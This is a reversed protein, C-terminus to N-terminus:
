ELDEDTQLVDEEIKDTEVVLRSIKKIIDITDTEFDIILSIFVLSNAEKLRFSEDFEKNLKEIRQEIKEKNETRGAIQARGLLSEMKINFHGPQESQKYYLDFPGKRKNVMMTGSLHLTEPDLDPPIFFDCDMEKLEYKIDIIKEKLKNFTIGVPSILPLPKGKEEFKFSKYDYKSELLGKRQQPIDVVLEDLNAKSDKEISVSLDNYFIEIFNDMGEFLKKMQIIELTDSLYPYFVQLKSEFPLENGNNHKAKILTRYTLSDIRDIRGTRQEMDSPNWAIGYHYINKCYSHLDEGEKLIDTSILIFPNGPMRFQIAMKRVDRKHHGSVGAVPLQQILNHKIKNVDDFNRNVIKDFDKIVVKIEDLVFSFECKLISMMENIFYDANKSLANAVFTPVLGSGQRFISKIIETLMNLENFFRSFLGNKLLPRRLNIWDTFEIDCAYLLLETALTNTKYIDCVDAKSKRTSKMAKLTYETIGQFRKVQSKHEFFSQEEALVKEDLKVLNHKENLLYLNLEFWNKAYSNKRFNKGENYFFRQFFYPSKEEDYKPETVSTEDEDEDRLKLENDWKLKILEISLNKLDSSIYSKSTFKRTETKFEQVKKNDVLSYFIERLDRNVVKDITLEDNDDDTKFYKKLGRIARKEIRDLVAEIKDNELDNKFCEFLEQIDHPISQKCVIKIKDILYSSYKRLLKRELEKVSAIRRVFVLAKQRNVLLQFLEDVLSEQKPHPPYDNLKEFYKDILGKLVDEDKAIRDKRNSLTDAEYVSDANYFSEFGALMGMEFMNNNKQNLEKITKYQMMSLVLAIADDDIKQHGALEDMMVNGLRHEHRYKNRSYQQKNIELNMVGRILFQNLNKAIENEIEEDRINSFKHVQLFCDLQNKIEFLSNNIPTASLLLLKKVKPKVMEYLEPFAEFLEPDNTTSGLFRSVVQNRLSVGYNIGHRYNHAEDVILLDIKPITTNLLYAYARKIVEHNSRFKKVIKSFLEQKDLSLKAKLKNIWENRPNDENESDSRISFSPNRYLYYGPKDSNFVSLSEKISEENLSGIPKNLISKVINDSVLYNSKIFNQIEKKWKYQLNKKPVIITDNYNSHNNYLRLLSAIGLAIYTKGLGVEDGIYLFNNEPQNLYNFGKLIVNFQREAIVPDIVSNDNAPNLNIIERAIEESLYM